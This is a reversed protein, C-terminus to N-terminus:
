WDKMWPLQVNIWDRLKAVQDVDSDLWSTTHVMALVALVIAAASVLLGLAGLGRGAVNPRRGASMGALSLLVGVAGVVIGFPALLGTLAMAVGAVGLVVGLTATMSARAPVVKQPVPTPAVPAEPKTEVRDDVGDRDRDVMESRNPHAPRRLTQTDDLVPEHDREVVREERVETRDDVGDHDRDTTSRSFLGSRPAVMSVELTPRGYSPRDIHGM